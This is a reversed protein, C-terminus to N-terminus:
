TEETENVFNVFIELEAALSLPDVNPSPLFRGAVKETGIEVQEFIPKTMPPQLIVALPKIKQL